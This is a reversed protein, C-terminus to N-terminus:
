SLEWPRIIEGTKPTVRKAYYRYVGERVKKQYLFVKGELAANHFFAAVEPKRGAFDAQMYMITKGVEANKLWEEFRKM